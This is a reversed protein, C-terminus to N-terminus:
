KDFIQNEACIEKMAQQYQVENPVKGHWAAQNEM